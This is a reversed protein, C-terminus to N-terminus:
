RKEMLYYTSGLGQTWKLTSFRFRSDFYDILAQPYTQRTLVEGVERRYIHQQNPLHCWYAGYEQMLLFRCRLDSILRQWRDQKIIQNLTCQEPDIIVLDTRPVLSDFVNGVWFSVRPELQRDKLSPDVEISHWKRPELVPWLERALLGVGGFADLVTMGKPLDKALEIFFKPYGAVATGMYKDPHGFTTM